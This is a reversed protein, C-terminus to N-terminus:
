LLVDIKMFDQLNSTSHHMLNVSTIEAAQSIHPSYVTFMLSGTQSWYCPVHLSTNAPDAGAYSGGFPAFCANDIYLQQQQWYLSMGRKLDNVEGPAVPVFNGLVGITTQQLPAAKTQAASVPKLCFEQQPARRRRRTLLRGGDRCTVAGRRPIESICPNEEDALPFLISQKSEFLNSDM